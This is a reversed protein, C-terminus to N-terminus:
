SKLAAKQETFCEDCYIPKDYRPLFPVTADKGCSACVVTHTERAASMNKKKIDRCDKCRAPPNRFGKSDYFEQEGATFIFECGCDKCQQTKDEYM